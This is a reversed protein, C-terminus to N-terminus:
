PVTEQDPQCPLHDGDGVPGDGPAAVVHECQVVVTPDQQVVLVDRQGSPPGGLHHRAGQRPDDGVARHADAIRALPFTAGVQPKLRGASVAATLADLEDRGRCPSSPASEATRLRVSLIIAGTASAAPTAFRGRRNLLRRWAFVDKGVLDLVGDFRETIDAPTVARYDLVTAAGLGRVFELDRESALATVHAGRAAALQVAAAGVGGAAGRVLLTSGDRIDLAQLGRYATTGVLPLSGLDAPGDPAPALWGAKVEYLEAAALTRGVPLNPKFGWVRTGIAPGTWGAGVSDITGFFDLGTGKPFWWGTAIRLSGARVDLDIQNLSSASRGARPRPARGVDPDPVEREALVDPGGYRDYQAARM